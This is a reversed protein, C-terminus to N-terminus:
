HREHRHERERERAVDAESWEELEEEVNLMFCGIHGCGVATFISMAARIAASIAINADGETRENLFDITAHAIAYVEDQPEDSM